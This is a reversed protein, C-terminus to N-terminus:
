NRSVKIRIRIRIRGSLTPIALGMPSTTRHFFELYLMWRVITRAALQEGRGFRGNLFEFKPLAALGKAAEGM